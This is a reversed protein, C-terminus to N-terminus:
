WSSCLLTNTRFLIANQSFAGYPERKNTDERRELSVKKRKIKKTQEDYWYCLYDFLAMDTIEKFGHKESLVQALKKVKEVNSLYNELRQSLKDTEGFVLFYLRRYTRIVRNNIMPFNSNLAYFIPSLSGCQLGKSLRSSVFDRIAEELSDPNEQFRVVLTYIRNSLERWDDEDYEFKAFFKRINLFSPAISVRKAYKTDGHPLLGYLVLDIFETSDKPLTKLKELVEQVEKPEKERLWSLHFKGEETTLHRQFGEIIEGIEKSEM